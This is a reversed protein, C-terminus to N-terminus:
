RDYIIVTASVNPRTMFQVDYDSFAKSEPGVESSSYNRVYIWTWPHPVIDNKTATQLVFESDGGGLQRTWGHLGPSKNSSKDPQEIYIQETIVRVKDTSNQRLLFKMKCGDADGCLPGIDQNVSYWKKTDGKRGVKFIMPPKEGNLSNASIANASVDGAVDLKAKPNTTGIGVNGGGNAIIVNGKEWYNLGLRGSEPADLILWDGLGKISPQGSKRGIKLAVGETPATIELKANPDITGIGVNGVSNVIMRNIHSGNQDHTLFSTNQGSIQILAGAATAQWKNGDYWENTALHAYDGGSSLYANGIKIAQNPAIELKTQPQDTGIGVRGSAEIFLADESHQQSQLNGDLLLFASLLTFVMAVRKLMRPRFSSLIGPKSKTRGSELEDMLKQVAELEVKLEKIRRQLQDKM